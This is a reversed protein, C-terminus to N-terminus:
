FHGLRARTMRQGRLMQVGQQNRNEEKKRPSASQDVLTTHARISVTRNPVVKNATLVTRLAKM